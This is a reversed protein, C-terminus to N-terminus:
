RTLSMVKINKYDPYEKQLADVICEYEATVVELKPCFDVYPGIDYKGDVYSFKINKVIMNFAM